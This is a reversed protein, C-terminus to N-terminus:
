RLCRSRPRDAQRQGAGLVLDASEVLVEGLPKVSKQIRSTAAPARTRRQGAFVEEVPTVAAREANRTGCPSLQLAPQFGFM